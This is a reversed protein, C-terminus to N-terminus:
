KYPVREELYGMNQIIIKKERDLYDEIAERM